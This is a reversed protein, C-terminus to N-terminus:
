VLSATQTETEMWGHTPRLMQGSAKKLGRTSRFEFEAQTVQM